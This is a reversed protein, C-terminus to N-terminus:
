LVQRVVRSYNMNKLCDYIMSEQENRLMHVKNERVIVSALLVGFQIMDCIKNKRAVEKSIV